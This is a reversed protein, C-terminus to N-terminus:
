KLPGFSTELVRKEEGIVTEVEGVEHGVVRGGGVAGEWGWGKEWNDNVFKIGKRTPKM